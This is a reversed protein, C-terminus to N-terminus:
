STKLRSIIDLFSCDMPITTLILLSQLNATLSKVKPLPHSPKATVSAKSKRKSKSKSKPRVTDDLSDFADEDSPVTSARPIQQTRSAARSKRKPRTEDKYNVDRKLTQYQLPQDQLAGDSSFPTDNSNVLSDIESTEAQREHYTSGSPKVFYPPYSSIKDEQSCFAEFTQPLTSNQKSGDHFRRLFSNAFFKRVADQHESPFAAIFVQKLDNECQSTGLYTVILVRTNTFHLLFTRVCVKV